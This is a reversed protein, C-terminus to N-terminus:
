AKPSTLDEPTEAEPLGSVPLTVSEPVGPLRMWHSALQLRFYDPDAPSSERSAIIAFQRAVSMPPRPQSVVHHSLLLYPLSVRSIPSGPTRAIHRLTMSACDVMGKRVRKNPQWVPRFWAGSPPEVECWPSLMGDVYQDRSVIRTDSVGPNPAFFTWSPILAIPDARKLRSVWRVARTQALATVLLLGGALLATFLAWLSL